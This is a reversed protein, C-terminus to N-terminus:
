APPGSGLLGAARAYAQRAEAEHGSLRLADGRVLEISPGSIGSLVELVAGAQDPAIRLVVALRVAAAPGRDDALDARAADLEAAPDPLSSGSFGVALGSGLGVSM